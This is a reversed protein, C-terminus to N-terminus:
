WEKLKSSDTTWIFHWPENVMKGEYWSWNYKYGNKKIWDQADTPFVDIAKGWGHNSTGPLAAAVNTGKKKKEGTRNYRDWDFIADQIEYPRYADTVKFTVGDASAAKEMEAFDRAPEAALKLGPGINVLETASLKGNKGTAAVNKVQVDIANATATSAASSDTNKTQSIPKNTVSKALYKLLGYKIADSSKIINIDKISLEGTVPLNNITQFKIVASETSPGFIGNDIEQEDIDYGLNSLRQQLASLKSSQIGRKFTTQRKPKKTTQQIKKNDQNKSVTDAQREDDINELILEIRRSLIIHGERNLLLDNKQFYKKSINYANVVHETITQTEVWQTILENNAYKVHGYPVHTKSTPTIAILEAGYQKASNYMQTLIEIEQQSNSPNINSFMICVVDYQKSLSNQLMGPFEEITVNGASVNGKYKKSKLINQAYSYIPVTDADGIFLVNLIKKVISSKQLNKNKVDQQELIYKLNIM